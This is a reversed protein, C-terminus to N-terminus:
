LPFNSIICELLEFGYTEHIKTAVLQQFIALLRELQNNKAIESAGRPIM